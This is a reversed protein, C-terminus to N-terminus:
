FNTKEWINVAFIKLHVDVTLNGITFKDIRDKIVYRTFIQDRRSTQESFTCFVIAVSLVYM